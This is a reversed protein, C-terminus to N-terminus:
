SPFSQLIASFAHHWCHLLKKQKTPCFLLVKAMTKIDIFHKRLLPMIDFTWYINLDTDVLGVLFLAPSSTASAVSPTAGGWFLQLLLPCSLPALIETLM